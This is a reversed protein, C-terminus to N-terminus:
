GIYRRQMKAGHLMGQNFTNRRGTSNVKPEGTRIICGAPSPAAGLRRSGLAYNAIDGAPRAGGM